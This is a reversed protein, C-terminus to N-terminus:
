TADDPGCGKLRGPAGSDTIAVCIVQLLSQLLLFRSVQTSESSGLGYYAQDEPECLEKATDAGYM